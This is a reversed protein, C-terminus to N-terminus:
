TAALREAVHAAPCGRMLEAADLDFVPHRWDPAIDNLPALVFMREHMRPHPLILRGDDTVVDDYALLDLDLSRAANVGSRRRGFWDEVEHLRELVAWPTMQTELRAVGNVFWPQDSRPVPESRYWPSCEAVRVCHGPEGLRDLAAGCTALPAGGRESPLNAGIGILIM